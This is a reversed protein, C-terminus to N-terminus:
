RGAQSITLEAHLEPIKRAIQDFRTDTTHMSSLSEQHKKIFGVSSTRFSIIYLICNGMSFDYMLVYSFFCLFTTCVATAVLQRPLTHEDYKLIIAVLYYWALIM